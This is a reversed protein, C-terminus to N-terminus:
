ALYRDPAWRGLWVLTAAARPSWRAARILVGPGFGVERVHRACKLPAM